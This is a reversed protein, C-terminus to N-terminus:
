EPGGAATGALVGAAAAVRRHAAMALTRAREVDAELEGHRVLVKGAAFVWDVNSTDMGWVVAGIPDNIPFINPSDARLVIVDAQKGPELSGTVGSLGAARSGDITAYRIVERTSLLPPLSAKGALKRDFLTAHQISIVARMQAFLDGPTAPESGVGLGPRLRNEILAQVPPPGLGGSMEGVPALSVQAGAAAAAALDDETAATCHILTVDEGLLGASGMQAILGPQVSGAHAHIRLGKQRAVAWEEGLRDLNSSSPDDSGFALVSSGDPQDPGSPLRGSLDSPKPRDSAWQPHSHVLVTRLAADSHAQIAADTYEDGSPIDCWDVVTTVGSEVAGLLGVLTGAYVDEPQYHPGYTAPSTSELSGGLNRFLSRWAHRHTDVFGPMVISDAADVVEADRARLGQGVELVRDDEILVDAEPYNPTKAGLSLVSGGRILIRRSM